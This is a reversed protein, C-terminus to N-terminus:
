KSAVPVRTIRGTKVDFSDQDGMRYKAKITSFLAIRLGRALEFRKVAEHHQTELLELSLTASQEREKALLGELLDERSLAVPLPPAQPAEPAPEPAPTKADTPTNNAPDLATSEASM